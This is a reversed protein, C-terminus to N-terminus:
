RRRRPDMYWIRALALVNGGGPVVLSAATRRLDHPTIRPFDACFSDASSQVSQTAM